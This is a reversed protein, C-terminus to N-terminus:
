VVRLYVCYNFSEITAGAPFSDPFAGFAMGVKYGVDMAPSSTTSFGLPAFRSTGSTSHLTCVGDVLVCLWYVGVPLSISIALDGGVFGSGMFGSFLKKNPTGNSDSYIAYGTNSASVNSVLSSGIIDFSTPKSVVFPTAYITDATMLFNAAQALTINGNYYRGSIFIQGPGPFFFTPNRHQIGM